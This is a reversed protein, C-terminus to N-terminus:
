ARRLMCPTVQRASSRSPSGGAMATPRRRMAGMSMDSAPAWDGATAFVRDTVRSKRGALKLVSASTIRVAKPGLEVRKLDGRDALDHVYRVSVALEDAAERYRLLTPLTTETKTTM